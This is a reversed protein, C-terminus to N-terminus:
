FRDFDILDMEGGYTAFWNKIGGELIYAVSNHKVEPQELARDNLYDQYRCNFFYRRENM